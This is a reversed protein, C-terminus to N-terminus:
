FIFDNMNCMADRHMPPRMSQNAILAVRIVKYTENYM